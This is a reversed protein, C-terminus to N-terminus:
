LSQVDVLLGCPGTTPGPDPTAYTEVGKVIMEMGNLKVTEGMLERRPFEEPPDIVFVWGRGEICFVDHVVFERV